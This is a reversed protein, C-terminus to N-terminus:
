TRQAAGDRPDAVFMGAEVHRWVLVRDHPLVQEGGDFRDQAIRDVLGDEGGPAFRVPLQGLDEGVEFRREVLLGFGPWAAPGAPALEGDRALHVLAVLDDGEVQGRAVAPGQRGELGALEDAHAGEDGLQADVLRSLVAERVRRVPGVEADRDLPFGGGGAAGGTADGVDQVFVQGLGGLELDAVGKAIEGEVQVPVGGDHEDAAADADGGHHGHEAVDDGVALVLILLFVAAAHDEDVRDPVPPHVGHLIMEALDHALVRLDAAGDEVLLDVALAIPGAVIVIVRAADLQLLDPIQDQERMRIVIETPRQREHARLLGRQLLHAHGLFPDM